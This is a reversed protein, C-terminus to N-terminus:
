PWLAATGSLDDMAQLLVAEGGLAALVPAMAGLEDLLQARQRQRAGDLWRRWLPQLLARAACLSDHPAEALLRNREVEALGDVVHRVAAVPDQRLWRPWARRLLQLWGDDDFRPRLLAVLESLRQADVEALARQAFPMRDARAELRDLRQLLPALGTALAAPTAAPPLPVAPRAPPPQALWADLRARAEDVTLRPQGDDGFPSPPAPLPADDEADEVPEAGRLRDRLAAGLPERELPLSRLLREAQAPDLLPVVQSLASLVQRPLKTHLQLWADLLPGAVRGSATAICGLAEVVIRQGGAAAADSLVEPWLGDDGRVSALRGLAVARQFPDAIARMREALVGADVDARLAAAAALLEAQLARDALAAVADFFAPWLALPLQPLAAGLWAAADEDDCLAHLRPLAQQLRDVTWLAPWRTAMAQLAQLAAFDVEIGDLVAVAQPQVEDPLLPALMLLARARAADSGLGAVLALAAQASAAGPLAQVVGLLQERWADDGVDALARLLTAAAADPLQPVLEALLEPAHPEPAADLLLPLVAGIDAGAQRAWQAAAVSRASRDREDHLSRLAQERLAPQQAAAVREALRLLAWARDAPAGIEGAWRLAEPLRADDALLALHALTDIRLPEDVMAEFAPVVAPLQLASADRALAWARLLQARDLSDRCRRLRWEVEAAPLREDPRVPRRAARLSEVAEVRQRVSRPLGGRRARAHALAAPTLCPAWREASGGFRSEALWLLALPLQAAIAIAFGARDALPVHQLWDLAGRCVAGPAGVLAQRLEAAIAEVDFGEPVALAADFAAQLRPWRQAPPLLAACGLLAAHRHADAAVGDIAACLRQLVEAAAPGDAARRALATLARMQAPLDDLRQLRATAARLADDDLRPAMLAVLRQREASLPRGLALALADDRLAAPLAEDDAVLSLLHHRTHDSVPVQRLLALADPLLRRREAAPMRYALGLFADLRAEEDRIDVVGAAAETLREAPLAHALLRLAQARQRASPLQWVAAVAQAWFAGDDTSRARRVSDLHDDDERLAALLAPLPVGDSRALLAAQRARQQRFDGVWLPSRLAALLLAATPQVLGLVDDGLAKLDDDHLLAARAAASDDGARALHSAIGEIAALAWADRVSDPLASVRALQSLQLGWDIRTHWLQGALQSLHQLTDATPPRLGEACALVTVEVLRQVDSGLAYGGDDDLLRAVAACAGPRSVLPLLAHLALLRDELTYARAGVADALEDADVILQCRGALVEGALAEGYGRLWDAVADEAAPPEAAVPAGDAVAPLPLPLVSGLRRLAACLEPDAGVGDQLTLSDRMGADLLRDRLARQLLPSPQEAELRLRRALLPRRAAPLRPLLDALALVRRRSGARPLVHDFLTDLEADDLWPAADVLLALAEDVALAGAGLEALLAARSAAMTPGQTGLEVLALRARVRLPLPADDLGALLAAVQDADLRLGIRRLADPVVEPLWRLLALAQQVAGPQAQRQLVVSLAALLFPRLDQPRRILVRDLLPRLLALRDPTLEDDHLRGWLGPLGQVLLQQTVRDALERDLWPRLRVITPLDDILAGADGSHGVLASQLARRREDDLQRSAQALLALREGFAAVPEPLAPDGRLAQMFDHWGPWWSPPETFARLETVLAALALPRFGPELAAGLWVLAAMRQARPPIRSAHALAQAPTWVGRRALAALLPLSLDAALSSISSAYLAARLEAAVLPSAQGAAAAQATAAALHEAVQTMDALFGAHSGRDLPEWAKMWAPGVLAALREPPSGCREMHRRLFQPVYAPMTSARPKAAALEALCRLGWDVFRQEHRLARGAARLQDFFFDGLRPHGFVYGQSQGDGVVFRRLVQLTDDLAWLDIDREAPLLELLEASSLPGLACALTNLLENVAPERLPRKDGWLARQDDWWRRFYGALGPEIQRLDSPQLRAVEDGLAWLDAVYLKVLLPDGESLRYLEAVLDSRAGFRELPVSMGELLAVLGAPTLPRLEIAMAQGPRQWGLRQLWGTADSDGSLYRASVLLKLGPPPRAPLLDAGPQWDGGEDAGDIVIVARVGAPLPRSLYSLLLGRWVETASEDAAGVAEGHLAALRTAISAYAQVALHTRFRISIPFFVPRLDQRGAHRQVWHVLLASKGRGAPAVVVACPPGQPEDVWRDLRELEAERGGFITPEGAAGTYEAVFRQIALDAEYALGSGAPAILREMLVRHLDAVVRLALEHPSDFDVVVHRGRMEQRLAAQAPDPILTSPDTGHPVRRQYILCPLGRQLARRYELETIGSGRQWGILGIYLECRDLEALSTDAAGDSRAGFHEMGVFRAERLHRLAAEVEAREAQLDVVTSSVFVKLSQMGSGGAARTAAQGALTAADARAAM